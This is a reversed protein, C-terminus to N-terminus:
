IFHVSVSLSKFSKLSTARNILPKKLKVVRTGLLIEDKSFLCVSINLISVYIPVHQYNIDHIVVTPVQPSGVEYVWLIFLFFNM